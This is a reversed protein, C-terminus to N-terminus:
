GHDQEVDSATTSDARCTSFAIGSSREILRSTARILAM